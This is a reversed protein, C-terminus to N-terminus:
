IASEVADPLARGRLEACIAAARQTQAALGLVAVRCPRLLPSAAEVAEWVTGFPYRRLDDILKAADLGLERALEPALEPAQRCLRVRRRMLARRACDEAPELRDDIYLDQAILRRRITDAMGDRARGVIRGSVAVHCELAHRIRADIRRLAKFFARDEGSAVPPVGQSRRYIELTVAISAGSHQTHRPLPDDPDPDLSAHIEDCLADYATERVDDEHLHEPIHPCDVPDLDVWGAVADAGAQVAALNGDLWNQDVVGDADTTLLLGNGQVCRAAHEMAMRRAWGAHARDPPLVCEVVHLRARTQGALGRAIPATGDTSNNVLVVIDDIGRGVQRDLAAICREIRDAEDRAPVAVAISGTVRPVPVSIM